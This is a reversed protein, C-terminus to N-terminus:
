RARLRHTLGTYRRGAGKTRVAQWIARRSGVIVV